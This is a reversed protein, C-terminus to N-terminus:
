TKYKFEQKEQAIDQRKGQGHFKSCLKLNECVYLIPLINTNVGVKYEWINARKKKRQIM